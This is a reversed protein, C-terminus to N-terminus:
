RQLFKEVLKEADHCAQSLEKNIIVNSFRDGYTIEHVAKNIRKELTEPTESARAILRARLDEIAPPRVFVDLLNDHYRGKIHIGGEVDVDFIAVKGLDAIRGIESKLTGYFGNTYVEEWELFEDNAIKNHFDDVSIFYYDKGHEEGNRM